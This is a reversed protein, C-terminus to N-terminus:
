NLVHGFPIEGDHYDQHSSVLSREYYTTAGKDDGRVDALLNALALLSSSHEPDIALSRLYCEEAKDYERMRELLAGLLSLPDAKTPRVSSSSGGGGGGGGDAGGYETFSLPALDVCEEYMQQAAGFHEDLAYLTGLRMMLELRLAHSWDMPHRSDIMSQGGGISENADYTGDGGGFSNARMPPADRELMQLARKLYSQARISQGRLVLREAYSRLPIPDDPNSEIDWM